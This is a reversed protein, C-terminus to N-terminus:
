VDSSVEKYENSCQFHRIASIQAVRVAEGIAPGSKGQAIAEQVVSKKDVSRIACAYLFTIYAQPYPENVRTQGRGQADCKCALLFRILESYGKTDVKFVEVLLKHIKKPKLEKIRHVRTHNDSTKEALQQIKKPVRWKESFKKIYDVGIQEHGHLNGFEKHCYAKGFDHCLVAYRTELDVGLEAARRLCLMTHNWVDGEPHWKKPQPVNKMCEIEPFLGLPCLFYFFLHAHDEMLAREMEKWVREPTLEQLEGRGSIKRCLDITGNSIHWDEGFRALFRALRVVRLPDEAFAETTHRLLMNKMDEVGGYPDILNGDIDMAMSNITLDRRALDEEITVEPSFDVSFGHYGKGIKRETRALAYEEGTQPHLFVPFDAGVQTYGLEIMLAPTAGTVVWDKDKPEVGMLQDRVAGGVLYIEM